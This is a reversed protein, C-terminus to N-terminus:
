PVIRNNHGTKVRYWTVPLFEIQMEHIDNNNWWSEGVPLPQGSPLSSAYEPTGWPEFQEILCIREM